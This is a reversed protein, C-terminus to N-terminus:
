NRENALRPEDSWDQAATWSLDFQYSAGPPAALLSETTLVRCQEVRDASDCLAQDFHSPEHITGGSQTWCAIVRALLAEVNNPEEQIALTADEIAAKNMDDKEPDSKRACPITHYVAM